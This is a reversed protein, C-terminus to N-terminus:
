GKTYLDLLIDLFARLNADLMHIVADVTADDTFTLILGNQAKQFHVTRCLWHRAQDKAQVAATAEAVKRAQRAGSQQMEQALVKPVGEATKAELHSVMVPIIKDTLRRTLFVSQTHGEADVSDLRLRDEILDYVGTFAQIRFQTRGPGAKGVPQHGPQQPPADTM